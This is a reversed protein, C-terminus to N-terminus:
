VTTCITVLILGHLNEVPVGQQTSIGPAVLFLCFSGNKQEEELPLSLYKYCLNGNNEQYFSSCQFMMPISILELTWCKLESALVMFLLGAILSM